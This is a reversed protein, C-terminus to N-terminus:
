YRFSDGIHLPLRDATGAAFEAVTEGDHCFSQPYTSPAVSREIATVKKAEDLWVMDIAFKMDKMWMCHEETAGFDFIMVADRDISERGSLGKALAAKTSVIEPSFFTGRVTLGQDRLMLYRAGYFAGAILVVGALILVIDKFLFKRASVTM